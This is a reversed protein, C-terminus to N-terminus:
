REIETVSKALNDIEDEFDVYDSNPFKYFYLPPVSKSEGLTESKIDNSALDICEKKINSENTLCPGTPVFCVQASDAPEVHELKIEEVDIEESKIYIQQKTANAENLTDNVIESKVPHNYEAKISEHVKSLYQGTPTCYDHASDMPELKIEGIDIIECKVDSDTPTFADDTEIRWTSECKSSLESRQLIALEPRFFYITEFDDMLCYFISLGYGIFKLVIISIYKM